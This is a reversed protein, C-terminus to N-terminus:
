DNSRLKEIETFVEQASIISLPTNQLVATSADFRHKAYIIKHLAPSQLPGTYSPNATVFLSITKVNLAVAVHLPGTDGTVLIDLNAINAVLQKLNTKGVLSIINNKEAATLRQLFEDVLPTDKAGGILIIRYQKRGIANLALISHTLEVFRTVPWQRIVESAGMQFGIDIFDPNKELREFSIPIHMDINNVNCGLVELLRMKRQIIHGTFESPHFALWKDMLTSETAYNDRLIYNSGALAAIMIDYPMHSHLIVSLQPQHKRLAKVINFAHNVKSDWYIINDFYPSGEVMARNKHSSVLTFYANPYRKKLAHIAPTNFLLDGLATTSFIAISNFEPHRNLTKADKLKGFLPIYINLLLNVLRIKRIKM